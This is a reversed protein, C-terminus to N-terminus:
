AGTRSRLYEDLSLRPSQPRRGVAPTEALKARVEIRGINIQVRPVPTALESQAHAGLKPEVQAPHARAHSDVPQRDPRNPTTQTASRPEQELRVRLLRGPDAERRQPDQPASRQPTTAPSPARETREVVSGAAASGGEPAAFERATPAWHGEDADGSTRTSRRASRVVSAPLAGRASQVAAPLQGPEPAPESTPSAVKLGEPEERGAALPPADLMRHPQARRHARAQGPEAELALEGDRFDGGGPGETPEFRAAKRPTIDSAHSLAREVLRQMYGRTNM